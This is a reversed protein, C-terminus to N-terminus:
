IPVCATSRGDDTAPTSGHGGCANGRAFYAGRYRQRRKGRSGADDCSATASLLDGSATAHDRAATAGYLHGSADNASTDAADGHNGGDRAFRLRELWHCQRYRRILVWDCGIRTSCNERYGGTYHFLVFKVEQCDVRRHALGCLLIRRLHPSQRRTQIFKCM